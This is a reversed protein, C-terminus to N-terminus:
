RRLRVGVFPNTSSILLSLTFFAFLLTVKVPLASLFKSAILHREASKSALVLFFWKVAIFLDGLSHPVNRCRLLAGVGGGDGSAPPIVRRNRYVLGGAITRWLFIYWGDLNTELDVVSVYKDVEDPPVIWCRWFGFIWFCDFTLIAEFPISSISSFYSITLTLLTSNNYKDLM